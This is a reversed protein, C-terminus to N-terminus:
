GVLGSYYLVDGVVVTRCEVAAVVALECELYQVLVVALGALVAIDADCVIIELIITTLSEGPCGLGATIGAIGIELDAILGREQHKSDVPAVIVLVLIDIRQVAHNGAVPNRLRGEVLAKDSRCNVM